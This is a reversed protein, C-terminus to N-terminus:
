HVSRGIREFRVSNDTDDWSWYFRWAKGHITDREVFGWFRSDMSDDRNDGMVFYMDEPVTVPALNDRTPMIVDPQSHQIYDEVVLEGNRYLQKNRIEIVDGPVGVVRKIYDIEPNDPYPFIIIDGIQPDRGELLYGDGFPNKVGYLFKNVLLHDGIQLTQLMSGSPIKYAAVVFTRIFLAILLAIVIAEAYERFLSKETKKKNPKVSM